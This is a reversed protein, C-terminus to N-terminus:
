LEGEDSMSYHGEKTVIIHDLLPIGLLVGAEKIRKTIQVDARSAECTGSPHNHAIIIAAARERVADSFVERPHVLSQNLTGLHILKLYIKRSSGDLALVYFGEQMPHSLMEGRLIKVVKESDDFKKGMPECIMSSGEYMM